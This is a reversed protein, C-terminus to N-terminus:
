IREFIGITKNYVDETITRDFLPTDIVGHIIRSRQFGIKEYNNKLNNYLTEDLLNSDHAYEISSNFGLLGRYKALYESYKNANKIVFIVYSEFTIAANLVCELNNFTKFCFITKNYFYKWVPIDNNVVSQFNLSDSISNDIIGLSPKITAGIDEYKESKKDYYFGYYVYSGVCLESSELFDNGFVALNYKYSFFELLDRLLLEDCNSNDDYVWKNIKKLQSDSCELLIDITSTEYTYLEVFPKYTMFYSNFKPPVKQDERFATQCAFIVRNENVGGLIPLILKSDILEIDYNIKDRLTIKFYVFRKLGYDNAIKVINYKENKLM